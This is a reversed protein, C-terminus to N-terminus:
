SASRTPYIRQALTANLHLMALFAHRRGARHSSDTAARLLRIEDIARRAVLDLAAGLNDRAKALGAVPIEFATLRRGNWTGARTQIQTGVLAAWESDELILFGRPHPLEGIRPEQDEIVVLQADPKSVGPIDEFLELWDEVPIEHLTNALVVLDVREDAIARLDHLKTEYRAHAGLARLADLHRQCAAEHETHVFRPDEYAVYTLQEPRLAPTARLLETIAAVLRGQGAGIELVRVSNGTRLRDGLVSVFQDGQPDGRRAPAVGPQLLCEAAFRVTAAAADGDLLALLGDRAEDGGLLSSWVRSPTTGAFTVVGDQVFHLADVGAWAILPLSHTAIWIQGDKGLLRELSEIARACADPHLYVEPEDILVVNRKYHGEQRLLLIAWCLLVRQGESLAASAFPQGFLRPIVRSGVIQPEVTTGLLEHVVQNFRQAFEYERAVHPDERAGPHTGHWLARATAELYVHLGSAVAGYNGSSIDMLHKDFQQPSLRAPDQPVTDSQYRLQATHLWEGGTTDDVVIGGTSEQLQAIRQKMYAAPSLESRSGPQSKLRASEQLLQIRYGGERALPSYHTVTQHVLRLYRTKGGGNPGALIVRPRLNAIEKTKLGANRLDDPNFRIRTIVDGLM